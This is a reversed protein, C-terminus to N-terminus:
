RHQVRDDFCHTRYVVRGRPLWQSSLVLCKESGSIPDRLIRSHRCSRTALCIEIIGNHAYGFVWHTALIVNASEGKVGQWFAYYGYGLLPRKAISRILLGWIGTRGTLTANKGMGELVRPLYPLGIYVILAAAM